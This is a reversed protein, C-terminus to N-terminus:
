RRSNGGIDIRMLKIMNKLGVNFNPNKIKSPSNVDLVRSFVHVAWHGYVRLLLYILCFLIIFIEDNFDQLKWIATSMCTLLSVLFNMRTKTGVVLVYAGIM